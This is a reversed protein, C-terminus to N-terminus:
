TNYEYYHLILQLMNVTCQSQSWSRISPYHLIINIINDSKDATPGCIGQLSVSFRNLSFARIHKSEIDCESVASLCYTSLSFLILYM